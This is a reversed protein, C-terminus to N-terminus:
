VGLPESEGPIPPENQAPNLLESQAPIDLLLVM